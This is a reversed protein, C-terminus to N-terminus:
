KGGGKDEGEEKKNKKKGVKRNAMGLQILYDRRKIDARAIESWEAFFNYLAVKADRLESAGKPDPIVSPAGDDSPPSSLAVGLLARFRKRESEDIGREALRALAAQDVKRTAKRDKGSELEDLRDLFTTVSVVAGAGTQPELDQFIFTLQDPFEVALAARAVRFNPEDWADITAIAGSAEPATRVTGTPRRYGAARLLLSWGNNHHTDTYGRKALIARIYANTSLAGLFKLARPNIEDLITDSPGTANAM